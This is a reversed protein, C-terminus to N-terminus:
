VPDRKGWKPRSVLTDTNQVPGCSYARINVGTQKGGAGGSVRKQFLLLAASLIRIKIEINSIGEGFEINSWKNSDDRQSSELLHDFMPNPSSIVCTIDM